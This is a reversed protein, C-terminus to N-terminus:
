ERFKKFSYIKKKVVEGRRQQEQVWQNFYKREKELIDPQRMSMIMHADRRKRQEECKRQKERWQQFDYNQKETLDYDYLGFM